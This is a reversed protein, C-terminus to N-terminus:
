SIKLKSSPSDFTSNTLKNVLPKFKKRILPWKDPYRTMLIKIDKEKNSIRLSIAQPSVYHPLKKSITELGIPSSEAFLEEAAKEYENLKEIISGRKNIDDEDFGLEEFKQVNEKHAYKEFKLFSAPIIIKESEHTFLSSTNILADEIVSEFNIPNGGYARIIEEADDSFSITKRINNKEKFREIYSMALEFFFRASKTQELILRKKLIDNDSILGKISEQIKEFYKKNKYEKSLYTNLVNKINKSHTDRENTTLGRQGLDISDNRMYFYVIIFDWAHDYPSRYGFLLIRNKTEYFIDKEVLKSDVFNIGLDNESYWGDNLTRKNRQDLINTAQNIDLIALNEKDSSSFIDTSYGIIRKQYPEYYIALAKEIDSFFM